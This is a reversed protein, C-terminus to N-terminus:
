DYFITSILFTFRDISKSPTRLSSTSNRYNQCSGAPCDLANLNYHKHASVARHRRRLPVTKAYLEESPEMTILWSSTISMYILPSLSLMSLLITALQCIRNSALEMDQWEDAFWWVIYTVVAIRILIVFLQLVFNMRWGPASSFFFSPISAGLFESISALYASSLAPIILDAAM